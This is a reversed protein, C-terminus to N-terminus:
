KAGVVKANMCLDKTTATLREGNFRVDLGPAFDPCGAAAAADFTARLYGDNPSGPAAATAPLNCTAGDAYAVQLSAAGSNYTVNFTAHRIPLVRGPPFPGCAPNHAGIEVAGYYAGGVSIQNESSLFVAFNQMSTDWRLAAVSGIEPFNLLDYLGTKGTMFESGFNEVQLETEAFPVGDALAVVRHFRCGFCHIPLTNWNFLLSFGTDARGCVGQTDLRSTGSGAKMPPGGDISIEIRNATCHWGSIAGIGSQVSDPAPVELTGQQALAGTSLTFAFAIPGTFHLTRHFM